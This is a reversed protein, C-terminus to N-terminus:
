LLNPSASCALATAKLRALVNSAGPSSSFMHRFVVGLFELKIPKPQTRPLLCQLCEGPAELPCSLQLVVKRLQSNDQQYSHSHLQIKLLYTSSPPSFRLLKKSASNHHNSCSFSIKLWDIQESLWTQSKAVAHVAACWAERDMVLEWLKSLTMDMWDTIDDLWEDRTKRKEEQRWNNGADPDKGTLWSKGDPPWLIPTGAEADTRGIFIWSQNGKPYVPQIEKCGLPSELTEELVVTWFCNKPVWGKKHDLEWM